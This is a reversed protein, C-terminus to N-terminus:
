KKGVPTELEIIITSSNKVYAGSQLVQTLENLWDVLVVGVSM